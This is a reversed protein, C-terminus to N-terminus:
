QTHGTMVSNRRAMKSLGEMAVAPELGEGSSARWKVSITVCALGDGIIVTGAPVNKSPLL